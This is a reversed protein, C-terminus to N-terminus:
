EGARTGSSVSQAVSLPSRVVTVIERALAHYDEQETVEAFLSEFSSSSKSVRLEDISAQFAVRGRNLIVVHSCLAEVVDLRHSSFLIIKGSEALLQLLARFLLSANIDLGSFPEDLILLEPDHLLAAALLVRQRMGKSYSSMSAYRSDELAFLQLLRKVVLEIRAAPLGRLRGALRLYEPATLHTYLYPEEPVYGLRRRFEVPDDSTDRGAFRVHGASPEALGVMIRVTTSKGSGNPGLYGLIEGPRIAFSVDELVLIGRYRKTLREVEFM